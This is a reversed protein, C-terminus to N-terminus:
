LKELRIRDAARRIEAVMWSESMYGDKEQVQKWKGRKNGSQVRATLGDSPLDKM